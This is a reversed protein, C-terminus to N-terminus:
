KLTTIFTTWAAATVTLAHGDRNKTDRVCIGDARGVEVYDGSQPREM